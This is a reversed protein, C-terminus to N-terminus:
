SLVLVADVFSNLAELHRGAHYLELIKASRRDNRLLEEIASPEWTYPDSCDPM